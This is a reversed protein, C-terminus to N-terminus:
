DTKGGVGGSTFGPFSDLARGTTPLVGKLIYGKGVYFEVRYDDFDSGDTGSPTLLRGGIPIGVTWLM